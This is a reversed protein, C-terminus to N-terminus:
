IWMRRRYRRLIFPLGKSYIIYGVFGSKDIIDRLERMEKRRVTFTLAGDSGRRFSGHPIGRRYVANIVREAQEPAVRIVYYGGIADLLGFANM